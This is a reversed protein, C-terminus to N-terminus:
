FLRLFEGGGSNTRINTSHRLNTADGPLVSFDRMSPPSNTAASRQLRAAARRCFEAQLFRLHKVACSRVAIRNGAIYQGSTLSPVP